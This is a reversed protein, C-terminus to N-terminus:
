YVQEFEVHWCEIEGMDFHIKADEVLRKAHKGNYTVVEQNVTAWTMNSTAAWTIYFTWM